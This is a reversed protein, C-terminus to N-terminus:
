PTSDFTPEGVVRFEIDYTASAGVEHDPIFAIPAIYADFTASPNSSTASGTGPDSVYIVVDQPTTADLASFFNWAGDTGYSMRVRMVGNWSVKSVAEGGPNCYTEVDGWEVTPILTVMSFHCQVETTNIVVNPEVYFHPTAVM